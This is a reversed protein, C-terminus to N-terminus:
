QRSGRVTRATSWPLPMSALESLSGELVEVQKGDSIVRVQGSRDTRFILANARRLRALNDKHPHGYRNDAGASILAIEPKTARLFAASSSHDSGHHAVKLVDVDGLGAQLLRRM